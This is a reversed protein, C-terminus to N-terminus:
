REGSRLALATRAVARLDLQVILDSGLLLAGIAWPERLQARLLAPLAEIGAHEQLSEVRDTLLAVLRRRLPVILAHRRTHTSQDAPDLLPGLEVAICTRGHEDAIPLGAPNAVLKIELIDDRRVAYRRLATQVIVTLDSAM